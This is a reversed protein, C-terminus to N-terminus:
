AVARRGGGPSSGGRSGVRCRWSRPAQLARCSRRRRASGVSVVTDVLDRQSGATGSVRDTHEHRAGVGADGSGTTISQCPSPDFPGCCAIYEPYSLTASASPKM